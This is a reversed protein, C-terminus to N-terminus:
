ACATQRRLLAKAKDSSTVVSTEGTPSSGPGSRDFRGFEHYQTLLRASEEAGNMRVDAAPLPTALAERILEVLRDKGLDEVRLERLLGKSSLSEVRLKQENDGNPAAALVLGQARAALLEMVTNYGGLSISLSAQRLLGSVSPVDHVLQVNPLQAASRQYERFTDIPVLPGACIVVKDNSMRALAPAAQLVASILERGAHLRGSGCSVLIFQEGKPFFPIPTDQTCDHPHNDETGQSAVIYGTHVVPPHIAQACAYTSRLPQVREDSHVLVMDYLSNVIELVRREHAEPNHKRVLIDRVSAVILPAQTASRARELLPMLEYAFQKRGFPFLETVIVQPRFSELLELLRLKRSAKVQDLDVDVASPFLVKYEPDSQIAQLQEVKISDPFLYDPPVNGGCILLVEWGEASMSRALETSRVLHGIGALHQCYLMGRKLM